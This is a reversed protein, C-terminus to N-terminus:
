LEWSEELEWNTRVEFLKPHVLVKEPQIKRIFVGTDWHGNGNIDMIAKLGYKGPSLLGFDAKKETTVVRQSVVAGKETLLQIIVPYSKDARIIEVAFSGYEDVPKMKFAVHTSDCTDSYVDTFAGEPIYIDYKNDANWAHTVQLHRRISDTFEIVPVFEATDKATITHFRLAKLNYDKVPNAFTLILPKNYGLERNNLSTSYTLRSKAVVNNKPKGSAKMATAIKVTDFVKGQESVELILTDPKNLLWANLTDNTQNWERISWPISDPINIARFGPSIMPYRFALSLKNQATIASKLIRQISDPEPFINISILAQKSLDANKVAVTDNLNIADFYPQVSDTSFGILEAPPNYLYDSNADVLAIARYKGAALSNFHFNGNDATRSVYDPIKKYPVSDAFDRYLMVFAGKAPLRSLADTVNGSLSLSDITPGTSFAFNFNPIPNSEHLDVISEGFYFNYTTNSHLSDDLKLIVSNGKKIKLEPVTKLPPSILLFKEPSKLQIYEDFTIQLKNGNFNTSFAKPESSVMKPPTIDKEGGTPSVITACALTYFVLTVPLLLKLVQRYYNQFGSPM